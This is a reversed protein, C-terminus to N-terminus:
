VRRGRQKSGVPTKLGSRLQQKIEGTMLRGLCLNCRLPVTQALQIDHPFRISKSAHHLELLHHLLSTHPQEERDCSRTSKQKRGGWAAASLSYSLLGSPLLTGWPLQFHQYNSTLLFCIHCRKYFELSVLSFCYCSASFAHRAHHTLIEILSHAPM